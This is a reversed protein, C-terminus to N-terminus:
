QFNGFKQMSATNALTTLEDEHLSSGDVYRKNNYTCDGKKLYVQLSRRQKKFRRRQVSFPQEEFHRGHEASCRAGYSRSQQHLSLLVVIRIHRSLIFTQLAHM